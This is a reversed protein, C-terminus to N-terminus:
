PHVEGGHHACVGRRGGSHSYWGDKCEITSGNPLSSVKGNPFNPTCDQTLCFPATTDITPSPAVVPVTSITSAPMQVFLINFLLGVAFIICIALCGLMFRNRRLRKRPLLTDQQQAPEMRRINKPISQLSRLYAEESASREAETIRRAYIRRPRRHRM